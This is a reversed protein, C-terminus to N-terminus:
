QKQQAQKLQTEITRLRERMVAEAARLAFLDAPLELVEAFRTMLETNM